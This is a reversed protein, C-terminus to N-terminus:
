SGAQPARLRGSWVLWAIFACLPVWGVLSENTLPVITLHIAVARLYIRWVEAAPATIENAPVLLERAYTLNPDFRVLGLLVSILITLLVLAPFLLWAWLYFRKRGLVNLTTTRWSEHLVVRTVVLASIGPVLTGPAAFRAFRLFSPATMHAPSPPSVDFIWLRSWLSWSAGLTLVLFWAVASRNRRREEEIEELM